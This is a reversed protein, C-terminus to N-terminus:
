TRWGSNTWRIAVAGFTPVRTTSGLVACRSVGRGARCRRGLAVLGVEIGRAMVREEEEEGQVAVVPRLRVLIPPM